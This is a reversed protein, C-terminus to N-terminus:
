VLTQSTLLRRKTMAPMSHLAICGFLHSAYYAMTVSCVTTSSHHANCVAQGWQLLCTVLTHSMQQHEKCAHAALDNGQSM